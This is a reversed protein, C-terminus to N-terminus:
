WLVWELEWDMHPWDSWEVEWCEDVPVGEKCRVRRRRERRRRWRRKRERRRRERERTEEENEWASAKCRHATFRRRRRLVSHDDVVDVVLEDSEVRELRKRRNKIDDAFPSDDVDDGASYLFFAFHTRRRWLM